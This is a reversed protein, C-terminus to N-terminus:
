GSSTPAQEENSESKPQLRRIAFFAAIFPLLVLSVAALLAPWAVLVGLGERVGQDSAVYIAWGIWALVLIIAAAIALALRPNGRIRELRVGVPPM